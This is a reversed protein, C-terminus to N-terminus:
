SRKFPHHTKFVPLARNASILSLLRNLLASRHSLLIGSSQPSAGLTTKIESATRGLELHQVRLTIAETLYDNLIRPYLGHHRNYQYDIGVLHAILTNPSILSVRFGILQEDLYYGYVKVRAPLAKVLTALSHLEPTTIDLSARETVQQYLESLRNQDRNIHQSTLAREELRVSKTYSRKAKVRYKSTLAELYDNFHHWEPSLSLNLQPEIKFRTFGRKTLSHFLPHDPFIVAEVNRENALSIILREAALKLSRGILASSAKDSQITHKFHYCTAGIRSSHGCILVWGTMPTLGRNITKLAQSLLPSGKLHDVISPGSFYALTFPAIGVLTLDSYFRVWYIKEQSPLPTLANLYASHLTLEDGAFLDWEQAASASLHHDIKIELHCLREGREDSSDHGFISGWQYDFLCCPARQDIPSM